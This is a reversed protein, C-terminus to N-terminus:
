IRCDSVESRIEIWNAGRKFPTLLSICRFDLDLNEKSSSQPECIGINNPM